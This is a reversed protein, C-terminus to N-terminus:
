RSLFIATFNVLFHMVIPATLSGRWLYVAVFALGMAGVTIVGVSGQYGHGIAFIAASLLAALKTKGTLFSFRLVLYGRFIVEESVAVVFLFSFALLYQMIGQPVLQLAPGEPASLGIKRLFFELLSAGIVLPFFLWVGTIIEQRVDRATLGISELPEGNRWIFFIVLSLLALQQIITAGAVVSFDLRGPEVVFFSLAMSPIILFLFVCVEILAVRKSLRASKGPSGRDPDFTETM